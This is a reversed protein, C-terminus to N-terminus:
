GHIEEEWLQLKVCTEEEWLIAEHHSISTKISCDFHLAFRHEEFGKGIWLRRAEQLNKKFWPYSQMDMMEEMTCMVIHTHQKINDQHLYQQIADCKIRYPKIWVFVKAENGYLADVICQNDCVNGRFYGGDEQIRYGNHYDISKMMLKYFSKCFRYSCLMYIIQKQSLDFWIDRMSMHQKGIYLVLSTRDIFHAIKKPMVQIRYNAQAIDMRPLLKIDDEEVCVCQFIVMRDHYRFIGSGVHTNPLIIEHTSFLSIYAQTEHLHFALISTMYQTLRYTISSTSTLTMLIYIGYKEGERLLLMLRKEHKEYLEHFVEYNHLIWVIPYMKGDVKRKRLEQEIQYFFHDVKEEEHEFVVDMIHQYAEFLMLGHTDFDFVYVAIFDEYLILNYLFSQLFMEKDESDTGYVIHHHFWSGDFAIELQKQYKMDDILLLANNHDCAKLKKPFPPKWLATTHIHHRKAEEKIIKIVAEMQTGNSTRGKKHIRLSSIPTGNTHIYAIEDNQEAEYEQSVVYPSGSWAIQGHKYVEDLGVQFYCEGTNHLYAADEKRLMDHSDQTSQVKMCLHFHANSWIQDDIVGAPKQTALLLHIGLSRGIRASRKLEEMFESQAVKLEAFEDAIIFLHSLPTLTPEQKSLTQYTDINMNGIDYQQAADRFIQQRRVLENQLACQARKMMEGDLNTIIGAIHPLTECVKAMGGGKYDILLFSVDRPSFNVALSLIYTLICESKGSGTMGAFLGHAGDFKEHADLYLLTKNQCMGIAVRLSKSSDHEKWRRAIALQEVNGCQFLDLFRVCTPFIEEQTTEVINALIQSNRKGQGEDYLQYTFNTSTFDQILVGTGERLGVYAHGIENTCEIEEEYIMYVFTKETETKLLSKWAEYLGYEFFFLVVDGEKTKCLSEYVGEMCIEDCVLHRRERTQDFIHSIWAVGSQYAEEYTIFCAIRVDEPAHTLTLQYLLQMLYARGDRGSLHVYHIDNLHLVIPVEEVKVEKECLAALETQLADKELTFGEKKYEFTIPCRLTGRGLMMARYSPHEKRYYILMRKEVAKICAGYDHYVCQMYDIFRQQEQQIEVEKQLLYQHYSDERIMASRYQENREFRRSLLPWLLTGVGMSFAMILTPISQAIDGNKNMIQLMSFIGMSISSLGMTLAPGVVLLLPMHKQQLLPPPADMVQCKPVYLLPITYAKFQVVFPVKDIKKKKIHYASISPQLTIHDCQNLYFCGDGILLKLHMIVITDKMALRAQKQRVGNIYIGNTSHLDEIFWAEGEKWLRAHLKSVGDCIYCIDCQEDRGIYLEDEHCIYGYVEHQRKDYQSFRMQVPHQKGDVYAKIHGGIRVRTEGQKFLVNHNALLYWSNQRACVEVFPRREGKYSRMLWYRGECVGPLIAEDFTEEGYIQVKICVNDEDM